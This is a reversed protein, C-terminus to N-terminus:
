VSNLFLALSPASVVTVVVLVSDIIEAENFPSEVIIKDTPVGKLSKVLGTITKSFETSTVSLAVIVLVISPGLLSISVETSPM